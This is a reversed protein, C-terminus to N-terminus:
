INGFRLRGVATRGQSEYRRAESLSPVGSTRGAQQDPRVFEYREITAAVDANGDVRVVKGLCHVLGVPTSGLSSLLTIVYELLGHYFREAVHSRSQTKFTM